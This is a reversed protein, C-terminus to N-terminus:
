GRNTAYPTYDNVAEVAPVPMTVQITMPSIGGETASTDLGAGWLCEVRKANADLRGCRVRKPTNKPTDNSQM